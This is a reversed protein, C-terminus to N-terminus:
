ELVWKNGDWRRRQGWSSGDWYRQIASSGPQPYWGPAAPKSRSSYTPVNPNPGPPAAGQSPAPRRRGGLAVAFVAVAFFAIRVARAETSNGGTNHFVLAVALLGAIAVLRLNGAPSRFSSGMM